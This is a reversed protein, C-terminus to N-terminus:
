VAKAAPRPVDGGTPKMDKHSQRVSRDASKRTQHLLLLKGERQLRQRPTLSSDPIAKVEKMGRDVQRRARNGRRIPVEHLQQMVTEARFGVNRVAFITMGHSNRLTNRLRHVFAAWHRSYRALGTLERIREYTVTAARGERVFEASIANVANTVTESKEFLFTKM